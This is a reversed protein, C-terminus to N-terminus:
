KEEKAKCLEAPMINKMILVTKMIAMEKEVDNIKSTMWLTATLIGGLVIVTDVHKKFWEM